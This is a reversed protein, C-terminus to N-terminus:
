QESRESVVKNDKYTIALIACAGSHVGEAVTELKMSKITIDNAKQWTQVDSDLGDISSRYRVFVKVKDM